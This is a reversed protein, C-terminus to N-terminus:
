NLDLDLWISWLARFVNETTRTSIWFLRITNQSEESPMEYKTVDHRAHKNCLVYRQESKVHKVSKHKDLYSYKPALKLCKNNNGKTQRNEQKLNTHVSERTLMKWITSAYLQCQAKWTTVIDRAPFSFNNKTHRWFPQTSLWRRWCRLYFSLSM